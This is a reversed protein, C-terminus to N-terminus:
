EKKSVDILLPVVRAAGLHKAIAGAEYQVWPSGANARTLCFIGFQCKGLVESLNHFWAEGSRIDESSLWPEVAQIVKPLWDRLAKAAQHSPEGSWSLFIEM